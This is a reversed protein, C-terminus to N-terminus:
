ASKELAQREAKLRAALNLYYTLRERRFPKAIFGQAGWRTAMDLNHRYANATLMVVCAGTDGGVLKKLLELGNMDPLGIDLFVLDPVMQRYEKVASVADTASMVHSNRSILHVLLAATSPDDEVILTNLDERERRRTKQAETLSFETMVQVNFRNQMEGAKEQELLAAKIEGCITLFEGQPRALDYVKTAAEGEMGAGKLNECVAKAFADGELGPPLKAVALVRNDPLVFVECRAVGPLALQLMSAALERKGAYAYAKANCGPIQAAVGWWGAGGGALERCLTDLEDPIHAAVVRFSQSARAVPVAEAKRRSALFPDFLGSFLGMGDPKCLARPPAVSGPWLAAAAM